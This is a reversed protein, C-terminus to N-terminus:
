TRGGRGGLLGAIAEALGPVELYKQDLFGERTQLILVAAKNDIKLRKALSQVREVFKSASMEKGAAEKEAVFASDIAEQVEPGFDPSKPILKVLRLGMSSFDMPEGSGGIEREMDTQLADRNGIYHDPSQRAFVVDLVAQGRARIQDPLERLQLENFLQYNHATGPDVEVIADFGCYIRPGGGNGAGTGRSEHAEPEATIQVRNQIVFEDTRRWFARVFRIGEEHNNGNYGRKGPKTIIRIKDDQDLLFLRDLYPYPEFELAITRDPFERFGAHFIIWAPVFFAGALLTPWFVYWLFSIIAM